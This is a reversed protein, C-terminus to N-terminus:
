DVLDKSRIVASKFVPHPQIPFSYIIITMIRGIHYSILAFNICRKATLTESVIKAYRPVTPKAHYGSFTMENVKWVFIFKNIKSINRSSITTFFSRTSGIVAWLPKVTQLYLSLLKPGAVPKLARIVLTDLLYYHQPVNQQYYCIECLSENLQLNWSM